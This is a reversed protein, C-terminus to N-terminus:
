QKLKGMIDNYAEIATMKGTLLKRLNVEIDPRLHANDAGLIYGTDEPYYLKGGYKRDILYQFKEYQDDGLNSADINGHIGTPSKTARVWNEGSKPEALMMLLKIALDKNPSNKMVAWTSKYSGLYFDVPNFVPLEVPFMKKVRPEAQSGWASYMWTGNVLFLAKDELVMGWTQSWENTEHSAILPAYKGLEEFAEFAKLLAQKKEEAPVEARATSFDNVQSDFLRQFLVYLTFWDGSEYFAAIDTGHAENYEHVARVCHLLDEFTMGEKPIYIGVRDAVVANYYLAWYFGEVYPGLLVGGTQERYIPNDIIFSKQTERFGDVQEFDVLYKETWHREGLEEAISVYAPPQVIVIDWNVDGGKIANLIQENNYTREENRTLMRLNVSVGPNRFEFERVADRLFAEKSNEELWISLWNIQAQKDPVDAEVIDDRKIITIEQDDNNLFVFVTVIIVTLFFGLGTLFRRRM